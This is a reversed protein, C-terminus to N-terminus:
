AHQTRKFMAVLGIIGSIGFLMILIQNVEM